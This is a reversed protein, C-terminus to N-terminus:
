VDPVEVTHAHGWVRSTNVSRVAHKSKELEDVSTAIQGIYTWTDKRLQELSARLVANAAKLSSIEELIPTLDVPPDSPAVPPQSPAPEPIPTIADGPDIAPRYRSPDVVEDPDPWHPDNAGGGDGLIDRIFGNPYCIIDVAYGDCNNGSPKSLLGAGTSRLIWAVRKTIAFAGCPGSLDKGQSELQSKVQQVIELSM